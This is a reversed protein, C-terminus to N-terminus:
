SRLRRSDRSSGPCCPISTDCLTKRGNMSNACSRNPSSPSQETAKVQTSGGSAQYGATKSSPLTRVDFYPYHTECLNLLLFTPQYTFDISDMARLLTDGHRGVYTHKDFLVAFHSNPGIPRASVIAHLQYGLARLNPEIRFGDDM